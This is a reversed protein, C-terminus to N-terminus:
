EDEEDDIELTGTKVAELYKQRMAGAKKVPKPDVKKSKKLGGCVCVAIQRGQGKFFFLRLSGKIFEYVKLPKDAEHVWGHPLDDLGREAVTLLMQALGARMAETSPDGDTLFALGPYSVGDQVAVVQYKAEEIIKVKM